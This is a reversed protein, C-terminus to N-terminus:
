GVPPSLYPTLTTVTGGASTLFLAVGVAGPDPVDTARERLYSARGLRARLGATDRVGQWAAEAARRLAQDPPTPGGAAALAEAAPHLADVLTKDGPEAEGVRRIAALGEAVGKALAPTTLRDDEVDAAAALSQLLLGFLPGSTGGVEDLFATAAADLPGAARRVGSADVPDLADLRALAATTGANLNVGFDGDGSQQDLATLEPETARASGAFRRIWGDTYAGDFLATTM